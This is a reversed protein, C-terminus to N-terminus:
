TSLKIIHSDWDRRPVKEESVCKNRVSIGAHHTSDPDGTILPHWPPLSRGESLLRYACTEPLLRFDHPNDLSLALCDSVVQTRQAYRQCRCSAHDLFRCAIDTFFIEGSEDELKNLCCRGCGDCLSEWQSRTMKSLPVSEWFNNKRRLM